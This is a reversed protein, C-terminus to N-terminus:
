SKDTVLFRRSGPRIETFEEILEAPPSLRDVLSRFDVVHSDKALKLSVRYDPGRLYSAAGIRETIQQKLLKQAEDAQKGTATWERYQRVLENDAETAALESGDDTPFRGALYKSAGESGDLAPPIGPVVHENWFESEIQELAGITEPDREIVYQRPSTGGILVIFHARPASPICALYHHQQLAFDAPVQDTGEEGFDHARFTSAVKVELLSGDDVRRDVHAFIFPFRRHRIARTEMGTVPDLHSAAFRVRHGTEKAWWRAMPDELWKGLKMADTEILPATQGHKEMFVDFSTRGYSAVGAVPAADSGGLGSRRFAPNSATDTRQHEPQM